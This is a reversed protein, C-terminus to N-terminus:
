LNPYTPSLPHKKWLLLALYIGLAPLSIVLGGRLGPSRFELTIHHEGASLPFAIVADTLKVDETGPDYSQALPIEQGDVYATWGTEYPISTYFLGDEKVTVTGSLRTDTAEELTWVEDALKELAQAYAEEDYMATRISIGANKYVDSTYCLDFVDGPVVEGLCLIGREYVGTDMLKEGNKRIELGEGGQMRTNLCFIGAEEMTYTLTFEGKDEEEGVTYLFQTNNDTAEFTCNESASLQPGYFPHYLELELGTALSLLRSQEAFPDKDDGYAVFDGAEANMMFGVGIYSPNSLLVYEGSTGVTNRSDPDLNLKDQCILYKIGCLTDTPATSKMYQFTNNMPWGRLGLASVFHTFNVLASSSFINVGKCHFLAGDNSTGEVAQSVRFFPDPDENVIEMLAQGDSIHSDLTDHAVGRDFGLYCCLSSEAVFICALLITAIRHRVPISLKPLPYRSRLVLALLCLFLIGLALLASLYGFNLEEYFLYAGPILALSFVPPFILEKLRVESLMTWGRYALTLLSFSFLFSFRAPIMNPFHFGHWFYDLGSFICSLVLFILLSGHVARERRPLGKHCLACLGLFLVSFGCFLNPLGEKLIPESNPLTRAFILLLAKLFALLQFGETKEPIIVSFFSIEAGSASATQGMGKLTPLLLVASMAAALVTCLAFRLVSRFINRWPSKKAVHYGLFCLLVFVCCCFSLYYNCWFCLFLALTYLRFKGERLLSVTGVVLLPLLAFTDLWIICWYYGSAWACLAYLLSFFVVSIDNGRLIKRLYYAFSCGALGLKVMTLVTMFQALFLDPVFVSLLYLPCSLYYAYIPVFNIGMGLAWTHEISGGSRLINRFETLYPHYQAWADSRLLSYEGFPSIRHLAFCIGSIVFPLFFSLLLVWRPSRNFPRKM